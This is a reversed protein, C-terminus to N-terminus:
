QQEYRSPRYSVYSGVELGHILAWAENDSDVQIIRDYISLMCPFTKIAKVQQVLEEVLVQDTQITFTPLSM